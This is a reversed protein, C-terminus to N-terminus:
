RLDLTPTRSCDSLTHDATLCLFPSVGAFPLRWALVLCDNRVAHNYLNSVFCIERTQSLTENPLSSPAPTWPEYKINPLHARLVLAKRCGEERHIRETSEGERMRLAGASIFRLLKNNRLAFLPGFTNSRCVYGTFALM